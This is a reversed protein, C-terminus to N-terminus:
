AHSLGLKGLEAVVLPHPCGLGTKAEHAAWAAKIVLLAAGRQGHLERPRSFTRFPRLFVQARRDVPDQYGLAGEPLLADIEQKTLGGEAPKLPKKQKSKCVSNYYRKVHESYAM